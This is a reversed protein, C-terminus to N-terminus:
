DEIYEDNEYINEIQNILKSAQNLCDIMWKRLNSSTEQELIESNDMRSYYEKEFNEQLKFRNYLDDITRITDFANELNKLMFFKMRSFFGDLFQKVKNPFKDNLRGRLENKAHNFTSNIVEKCDEIELDPYNDHEELKLQFIKELYEFIGQSSKKPQFNSLSSAIDEYVRDMLPIYYSPEDDMEQTQSSLRENFDSQLSYHILDHMLLFIPNAGEMFDQDELYNLVKMGNLDPFNKNFSQIVYTIYNDILESSKYFEGIDVDSYSNKKIAEIIKKDITAFIKDANSTSKEKSFWLDKNVKDHRLKEFDFAADNNDKNLNSM